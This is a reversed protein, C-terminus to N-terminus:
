GHDEAQIGAEAPIVNEKTDPCEAIDAKVIEDEKPNIPKAWVIRKLNKIISDKYNLRCYGIYDVPASENESVRISIAGVTIPNGKYKITTTGLDFVDIYQPPM